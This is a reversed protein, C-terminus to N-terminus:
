AAEVVAGPAAGEALTLGAEGQVVGQGEDVFAVVGGGGAVAEQPVGGAGCLEGPPHGEVGAEGRGGVAVLEQGDADGAGGALGGGDGVGEAHEGVLVGCVTVRRQGQAERVGGDFVGLATQGQDLRPGPSAQGGSLGGGAVEVVETARGVLASVQHLFAV